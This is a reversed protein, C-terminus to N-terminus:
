SNSRARALEADMDWLGLFDDLNDMVDQVDDDAAAPTLDENASDVGMHEDARDCAANEKDDGGGRLSFSKNSTDSSGQRLRSGASSQQSQASTIQRLKTMDEDAEQFVTAIADVPPSTYVRAPTTKTESVSPRMTSSHLAASADTPQGGVREAITAFHSKFRDVEIPLSEIIIRDRPPPSAARQQDLSEMGDYGNEIATEEDQPLDFHVQRGSRSASKVAGSKRRSLISRPGDPRARIRRPPPTPSPSRFRRFSKISVTMDPTPLSSQKTDPTSPATGCSNATPTPIPFFPLFPEHGEDHPPKDAPPYATDDKEPSCPSTPLNTLSFSSSAPIRAPNADAWPNQSLTIATGKNETANSSAEPASIIEPLQPQTEKSWPSQVDGFQLDHVASGTNDADSVVLDAMSHAQHKSWPSQFQTALRSNEREGDDSPAPLITAEDEATRIAADCSSIVTMVDQIGDDGSTVKIMSTDGGASCDAISSGEGTTQEEVSLPTPIADARTTTNNDMPIANDPDSLTHVDTRSVKAVQLLPQSTGLSSTCVLESPLSMIVESDSIHSVSRDIDAARQGPQSAVSSGAADDAPTADLAADATADAATDQDSLSLSRFVPASVSRSLGSLGPGSTATQIDATKSARLPTPSTTVDYDNPRMRKLNRRRLWDAGAARKKVEPDKNTYNIDPAAGLDKSTLDRAATGLSSAWRPAAACTWGAVSDDPVLAEPSRQRKHSSSSAGKKSVKSRSGAWPNRWGSERSFPGRLSASLILPRHGQLYLRAQKELQRCRETPSDYYEDDSGSLLVDDLNHVPEDCRLEDGLTPINPKTSKAARSSRHVGHRSITSTIEDM